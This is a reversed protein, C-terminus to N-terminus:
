NVLFFSICTVKWDLGVRDYDAVGSGLFKKLAYCFMIMVVYCLSMRVSVTIVGLLRALFYVQSMDQETLHTFIHLSITELM